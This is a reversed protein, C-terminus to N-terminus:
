AGSNGNGGHDGDQGLQVSEGHEMYSRKEPVPMCKMRPDVEGAKLAHSMPMEVLVRRGAICM